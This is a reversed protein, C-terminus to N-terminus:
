FSLTIGASGGLAQSQQLQGAGTAGDEGDLDWAYLGGILRVGPGLTYTGSLILYDAYQKSGNARLGESEGKMYALGVKYSGIAYSVGVDYSYGDYSSANAPFGGNASVKDGNAWTYSGGVTFGAVALQVGGSLAQLNSSGAAPAIDGYLYGLSAKLGVDGFKESFNTGVAFGDSAGNNGGGATKSGGAAPRVRSISNNNDGGSEFNPIYSLGVQFGAFRPSIYSFKGSDNDDFRLLTGDVTTDAIDFDTPLPVLGQNPAATLNAQNHAIGGHPATVQLLYAANNEDGIILKGMDPTSLYMYSEDIQDGSTNAELQVDVGVTIGTDLTYEGTFCIESNHKQDVVNVDYAHQGTGDKFESLGIDNLM